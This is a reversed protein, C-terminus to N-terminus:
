GMLLTSTGSDREVVARGTLIMLLFSLVYMQCRNTDVEAEADVEVSEMVGRVGVSM